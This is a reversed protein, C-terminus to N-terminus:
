KILLMKKSEVFDGSQLKYIYIGSSYKSGDFVVKYDGAPKYEDVLTAVMQGIANYVRLTVHNSKLLGFKIETSPNFPNPYNQHLYYSYATLPNKEANNKLDKSNSIHFLATGFWPFVYGFTYRSAPTVTNGSFVETITYGQLSHITSTLGITNDQEPTGNLEGNPNNTVLVYYDNWNADAKYVAYSVNDSVSGSINFGTEGYNTKTFVYEDLNKVNALTDVQKKIATWAPAYVGYNGFHWGVFELGTAGKELGIYIQWKTKQDLYSDNSPVCQYIDFVVGAMIAKTGVTDNFVRGKLTQELHEPYWMPNMNEYISWEESWAGSCYDFYPQLIVDAAEAIKQAAAVWEDRVEDLDQWNAPEIARPYFVPPISIMVVSNPYVSKAYAYTEQLNVIQTDINDFYYQATHPPKKQMMNPDDMSYFGIIKSNQLTALYNIRDIAQNRVTQNFRPIMSITDECPGLGENWWWAEVTNPFFAYNDPFIYVEDDGIYNFIRNANNQWTIDWGMRNLLNWYQTCSSTDGSIINRVKYGYSCYSFSGYCNFLYATQTQLNIFNFGWLSGDQKKLQCDYDDPGLEFAVGIPFFPEDNLIFVGDSRISMQNTQTQSFVASSLFLLFMLLTLKSTTM